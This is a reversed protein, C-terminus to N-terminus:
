GLEGSVKGIVEGDVLAFLLLNSPDALYAAIRDPRVPEDFVEPAIRDFLAEEGPAMRILELRMM